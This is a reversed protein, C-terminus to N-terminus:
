SQESPTRPKPPLGGRLPPAAACALAALAHAPKQVGSTTHDQRTLPGDEKRIYQTTEATQPKHLCDDKKEIEESLPPDSNQPGAEVPSRPETNQSGRTPAEELESDGVPPEGWGGGPPEGGDGVPPEGQASAPLGSAKQDERLRRYFEKLDLPGAYGELPVEHVIVLNSIRGGSASRREHIEIAGIKILERNYRDVSAVKDFGMLAALSRRTPWVRRDKRKQNLHMSYVAFLCKAQPSIDAALVWDQVMSFRARRGWTLPYGEGEAENRM